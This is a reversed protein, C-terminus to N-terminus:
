AVARPGVPASGRGARATMARRAEELLRPREVPKAVYGDAGLGLIHERYGTKAEATVAVVPTQPDVGEGARIRALTELGDMVPMHIDLLVLDAPAEALRDLAERGNEAEAVTAGEALMFHRVIRRNIVVDDVILVRLGAFGSEPEAEAAAKAGDAPAEIWIRFTSGAGPASSASIDGGMARALRRTIALGLGTGGFERRISGDGQQFPSFVRGLTQDSMGVGTDRVEITLRHLDDTAPESRARLVVGGARTFKVANSLLNAVCQRLRAPDYVFREPTGEAIDLSLELGKQEAQPAYLDRVQELDDRLSRAIPILTM